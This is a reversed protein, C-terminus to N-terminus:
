DKTGVLTVKQWPRFNSRIIEEILTEGNRVVTRKFQINMGWIAHETEKETGKPLTPDDQRLEPPPPTQSLIVPKGITTIRGDSTGYIQYTLTTGAMYNQILIYSGTDNKFKFDVSPPFVTADFGAPSGGQEYFGVRYAHATREVIPFGANLVARFLTTSVQCVGGGDDLVTKDGKIVYAQKFGTASSVEGLYQNFSFIEGPPVLIGNTKAASLSINYVRNPISDIFSSTGKGLLERIGFNNIKDTSTKPYTKEVPLQIRTENNEIAQTIFAAAKLRNLESGEQGPQFETVRQSSEDFVFKAEVMPQDIKEAITKLYSALKVSDLLLKSDTVTNNGFTIEKISFNQEGSNFSIIETKTEDFNLLSYLTAQDITWTDKDFSLIIPSIKAAELVKKYKEAKANTLNPLLPKIPLTTPKDAKLTLYDKISALLKKDDIEIGDQSPIITITDSFVLQAPLADKKIRQNILSIQSTLQFYNKFKLEPYFDLGVMFLKFQDQLDMLIEGTRGTFYAKQLSEDLKLQPLTQKLNVTFTQGQYTLYLSDANRNQSKRYLDDTVKSINQGGVNNGSIKVGPFFKEQYYSLFAFYFLFVVAIAAFIFAIIFRLKRSPIKM